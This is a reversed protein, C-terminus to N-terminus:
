SERDRSEGAARRERSLTKVALDVHYRLRFWALRKETTEQRIGHSENRTPSGRWCSRDPPSCPLGAWLDPHANLSGAPARDRGPRSTGPM